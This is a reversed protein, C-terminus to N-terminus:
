NLSRQTVPWSNPKLKEFSELLKPTEQDRFSLFAEGLILELGLYEVKLEM